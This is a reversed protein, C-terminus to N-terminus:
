PCALAATPRSGSHGRLWFSPGCCTHFRVMEAPIGSLARNTADVYIQARRKKQKDDLGQEAHADYEQNRTPEQKDPGGHGHRQLLAGAIARWRFPPMRLPTTDDM